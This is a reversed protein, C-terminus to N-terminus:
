QRDEKSLEIPTVLIPNYLGIKENIIKIHQYKNANAIHICNWTLLFDCKYYSALALHLADGLRQKPMVYNEIYIEVINEVEDDIELIELGSILELAENKIPYDGIQLEQIVAESTYLILGSRENDWWHRTWNKRAIMEPEARVEHYFCPITTEIYVSKQIM